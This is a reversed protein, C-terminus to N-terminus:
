TGEGELMLRFQGVDPLQDAAAGQADLYPQLQALEFRLDAVVALDKSEFVATLVAFHWYQEAIGANLRPWPDAGARIESNLCRLNHLKDCATVLCDYAPAALLRLTHQCKRVLWPLKPKTDCDSCLDVLRLVADGFEYRIAQRLWDAGGFAEAQDEIADHLLAAIAQTEDGGHQLVLGSVGLLHSLYPAGNCKRYQQEHLVRAFHLGRDYAPSLRARGSSLDQEYFPIPGFDAMADGAARRLTVTM